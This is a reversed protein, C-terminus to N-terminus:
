AIKNERKEIIEIIKEIQFPKEFVEEIGSLKQDEESLVQSYGSMLYADMDPQTKRLKKILELGSIDPMELDSILIDISNEECIKVAEDGCSASFVNQELVSVFEVLVFLIDPEDDVLLINLAM